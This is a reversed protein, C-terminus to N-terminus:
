TKIKKAESEEVEEEDDEDGSTKRKLAPAPPVATPLKTAEPEDGNEEPAPIQTNGDTPEEM